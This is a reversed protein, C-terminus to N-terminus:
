PLTWVPWGRVYSNLSQFLQQKNERVPDHVQTRTTKAPMGARKTWEATPWPCPLGSANITLTISEPVLAPTLSGREEIYEAESISVAIRVVGGCQEQRKLPFDAHEVGGTRLVFRSPPTASYVKALAATVAADGSVIVLVTAGDLPRAAEILVDILQPDMPAPCAEHQALALLADDIQAPTMGGEAAWDRMATELERHYVRGLAV